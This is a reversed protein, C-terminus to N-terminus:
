GATSSDLTIVRSRRVRAQDYRAPGGSRQAHGDTLEREVVILRMAAPSTISRGALTTLSNTSFAISAPARRMSTTVAAPPRDSIRTVSSPEPM